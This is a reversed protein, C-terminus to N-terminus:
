QARLDIVTEVDGLPCFIKARILDKESWVIDVALIVLGRIDKEMKPILNLKISSLTEDNQPEHQFKRLNHGWLINDAITGVENSLWDDMNALMAHGASYQKLGSENAELNHDIERLKM